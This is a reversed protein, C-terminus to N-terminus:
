APLVGRLAEYAPWGDKLYALIMYYVLTLLMGVIFLALAATLVFKVHELWYRWPKM